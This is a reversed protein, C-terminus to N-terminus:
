FFMLQIGATISSDTIKSYPCSYVFWFHYLMYIQKLDGIYWHIYKNKYEKGGNQNVVSLFLFPCHCCRPM